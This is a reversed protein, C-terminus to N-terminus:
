QSHRHHLLYVSYLNLRQTKALQIAVERHLGCYHEVNGREAAKDFEKPSHKCRYLPLSIVAFEMPSVSVFTQIVCHALGIPVVALGPSALDPVAPTPPQCLCSCSLSLCDPWRCFTSKAKPSISSADERLNDAAFGPDQVSRLFYHRTAGTGSSEKIWVYISSSSDTPIDLAEVTAELPSPFSALSIGTYSFLLEAIEAKTLIRLFPTQLLGIKDESAYDFSEYFSPVDLVYFRKIGKGAETTQTCEKIPSLLEPLAHKIM